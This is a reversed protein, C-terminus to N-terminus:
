LRYTKLLDEFDVIHNLIKAKVETLAKIKNEDIEKSRQKLWDVTYELDLRYNSEYQFDWRYMEILRDIDNMIKNVIKRPTISDSAEFSAIEIPQSIYRAISFRYMLEEQSIVAKVTVEDKGIYTITINVMYPLYGYHLLHHLVYAKAYNQMFRRVDVNLFLDKEAEQRNSEYAKTAPEDIMSLLGYYFAKVNFMLEALEDKIRKVEEEDLVRKIIYKKKQVQETM